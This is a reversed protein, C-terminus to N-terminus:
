VEKNMTKGISFYPFVVKNNLDERLTQLKAGSFRIVSLIYKM